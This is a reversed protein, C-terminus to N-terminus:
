VQLVLKVVYLFHNMNLKKSYEVDCCVAMIVMVVHVLKSLQPFLVLLLKSGSSGINYVHVLCVLKEKFLVCKKCHCLQIRKL